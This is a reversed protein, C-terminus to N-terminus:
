GRIIQLRSRSVVQRKDSSADGHLIAETAIVSLPLLLKKSLVACSASRAFLAHGVVAGRGHARDFRAIRARLACYARKQTWDRGAVPKM